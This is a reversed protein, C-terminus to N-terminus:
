KGLKKTMPFSPSVFKLWDHTRKGPTYLSDMKKAIVGELNNAVAANFLKLGDTEVARSVSFYESEIVCDDLIKKRETLKFNCLDKGDKRLIDFAVFSVPTQKSAIQIKFENKNLARSRTAYFDPVGNTIVVLEGDLVVNNYRISSHLKVEPYNKSVDIEDRNILTTSGNKGKNV